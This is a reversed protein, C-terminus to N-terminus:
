YGRQMDHTVMMATLKQETVIKNTLLLVKASTAPDLPVQINM